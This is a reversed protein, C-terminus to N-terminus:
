IFSIVILHTTSHTDLNRKGSKCVEPKWFRSIQAVLYSIIFNFVGPKCWNKDPLEQGLFRIWPAVERPRAGQQRREGGRQGQSEKWRWRKTSCFCLDFSSWSLNIKCNILSTIGIWKFKILNSLLSLICGSFRSHSRMYEKYSTYKM